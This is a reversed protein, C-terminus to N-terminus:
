LNLVKMWRLICYGASDRRTDDLSVKVPKGSAQASLAAAYAKAHPLRVLVLGGELACNGASTVGDLVLYDFEGWLAPDSTGVTHITSTPEFFAAHSATGAAEGLLAFMAVSVVRKNKM